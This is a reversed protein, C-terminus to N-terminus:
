YWILVVTGGAVSTLWFAILTPDFLTRRVPFAREFGATLIVYHLNDNDTTHIQLDDATANVIAVEQCMRPPYIPTKAGAGLTVRVHALSQSISM